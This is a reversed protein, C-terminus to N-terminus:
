APETAQQRQIARALLGVVGTVAREPTFDSYPRAFAQARAKLDASELMSGVLERMKAKDKLRVTALAPGQRSLRWALIGQEVTEPLLLLPKGAHLAMSVTGMGGHNLVATAEGLLSSLRVSEEVVTVGWGRVAECARPMGAPSLLVVNAGAQTLAQWLLDHRKDRLNLYGLVKPGPKNPWALTKGDPPESWIPGVYRPPTGGPAGAREFHDLEPWTCLAVASPAFLAALSMPARRALEGPQLQGLQRLAQRLQHGLAAMRQAAGDQWPMFCPESAEGEHGRGAPPLEFGHGLALAPLGICQAAYLALASADVLLADARVREFLALWQRVCLSAAEPRGFAVRLYLESHCLVPAMESVQAVLAQAAGTPETMADPQQAPLWSSVQPARIWEFGEPALHRRGAEERAVAFVVRCGLERLRRAVPLLRALHGLNGGGEWVILITRRTM